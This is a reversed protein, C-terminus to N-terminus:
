RKSNARRVWEDAVACALFLLGAAIVKGDPRALGIGLFLAGIAAWVYRMVDSMTRVTGAGRDEGPPLRRQIFVAWIWLAGGMIAIVVAALGVSVELIVSEDDSQASQKALERVGRSSGGRGARYCRSTQASAPGLRNRGM